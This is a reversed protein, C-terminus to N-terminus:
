QCQLLFLLLSLWIGLIRGLQARNGRWGESPARQQAERAETPCRGAPLFGSGRVPVVM